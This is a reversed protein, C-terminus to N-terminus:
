NGVAVSTTSYSRTLSLAPDVHASAPTVLLQQSVTVAVRGQSDALHLSALEAPTVLLSVSAGGSLTKTVTSGAFRYAVQASGPTLAPLLARLFLAQDAVVTTTPSPNAEVYTGLASAEPDGLEAALVAALATDQYVDDPTADVELRVMDGEAQGYTQLLSRYMSRALDSDGLAEAALADYLQGAPTLTGSAAAAQVQTLVPQNLSALGYLAIAAQESTTNASALITQFYRAPSGTDIGQAGLAAAEASAVEDSSGYPVLAVGGDSQQYPALSPPTAVSPENFEQTLLTAAEDSAMAQDVRDSSAYALDLLEPYWAGRTADALTVEVTGTVAPPSWSAGASLSSEQASATTLRSATVTITKDLADSLSGASVRFTLTHTGATLPPLAIDVPTFATGTATLPRASLGPADVSFEVPQGVSLADGYAALRVVARDSSLYSTALTPEVFVPLSVPLETTGSGAALGNTVSLASVRWSTVNDPLTFSASAKGDTGTAVQQFGAVDRLDQRPATTAGTTGSASSAASPAPAAPNSVLGRVEGPAVGFAGISGAADGSFAGGESGPLPHTAYTGLIGAPVTTYLGSLIDTSAYFDQPAAAFVAEDVLSLLVEAQVPKGDLTVTVNVTAKDGPRYGTRAPAVAVQLAESKPDLAATVAGIVQYASGTFRIAEVTVNPVDASAFPFSYTASAQEQYSAIGNQAVLFLYPASGGTSAGTGPYAVVQVRQGLTFPGPNSLTLSPQDPPPGQSSPFFPYSTDTFTRGAPDVLALTVTYEPANTGTAVPFSSSFVGSGNTSVQASGAPTQVPVYNYTPIVTKSIFDYTQGTEQQRYTTAVVHLSATQGPIPKGQYSDPGANPANAKTLDVAYVTGTVVLRGGELVSQWQSTVAAALVEVTTQGAISAEEPITPTVSLTDNVMTAGNPGAPTVTLTATGGANTTLQYPSPGGFSADLALQPVPSGSYFTAQVTYTVPQGSVIVRQSPTVKLSYAPTTFDQIQLSSSSVVTGGVLAQLTYYGPAAGQYSLKAQYTGDAGTTSTAQAVTVQNGTPGFGTLQLVVQQAADPKTRLRLVGWADVSDSLRYLQRDTTLYEWYLPSSDGGGYPVSIGGGFGLPGGFGGEFDLPGGNSQLSNALPVAAQTGGPGDLILDPPMPTPTGPPSATLPQLASPTPLSAVGDAGTTAVTSTVTSTPWTVATSVGPVPQGTQLSNVWVLTKTQSVTVYASLDTVQLWAQTIPSGGGTAGTAANVLYYGAPLPGPLSVALGDNTQRIPATVHEVPTLTATPSASRNRTLTAWSPIATESALSGLFSTVDPFRYVAMAATAPPKGSSESFLTLQPASTTSSGWTPQTFQLGLSPTTTTGTGTEFQFVYDSALVDNTNAVSAGAKLTVTYLTAPALAAPVFVVTRGQSQFHGSVSPSISFRQEVGTVAGVDFTLEIGTNLPVNTASPGPITEAVALPGGSQFSWSQVAQGGPRDLVAFRYLTTSALPQSPQIRFQRGSSGVARVSVPVAPQVSLRSRVTAADLQATSTLSFSTGLAIGDPWQEAATLTFQPRFQPLTIATWTTPGPTPTASARPGQASPRPAKSGTLHPGVLFGLAILLALGSGAVALA